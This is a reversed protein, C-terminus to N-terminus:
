LLFHLADFWEKSSEQTEKKYINFIRLCQNLHYFPIFM